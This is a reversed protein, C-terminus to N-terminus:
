ALDAREKPLPVRELHEELLVLRCPNCFWAPRAPPRGLEIPEVAHHCKPCRDETM